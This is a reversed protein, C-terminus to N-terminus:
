FVDAAQRPLSPRRVNKVADCDAKPPATRRTLPHRLRYTIGDALKFTVFLPADSGDIVEPCEVLGHYHCTELPTCATYSTVWDFSNDGDDVVAFGTYTYGSDYDATPIPLSGIDIDRKSTNYVEGDVHVYVKGSEAPYSTYM